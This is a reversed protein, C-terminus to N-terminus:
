KKDENNSILKLHPSTQVRQSLHMYHPLLKSLLELFICYFGSFIMNTPTKGPGRSGLFVWLSMGLEKLLPITRLMTFPIEHEIQWHYELNASEQMVQSM